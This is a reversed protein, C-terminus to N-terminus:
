IWTNSHPIKLTSPNVNWATPEGNLYMSHEIDMMVRPGLTALCQSSLEATSLNYSIILKIKTDNPNRVQCIINPTLIDNEGEKAACNINEHGQHFKKM